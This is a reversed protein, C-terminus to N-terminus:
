WNEALENLNMWTRANYHYFRPGTENSKFFLWSETKSDYFYPYLEQTSYIWSGSANPLFFWDSTYPGSSDSMGLARSIKDIMERDSQLPNMGVEIEQKDDIGDEDSDANDAKTGHIFIEDYNSLGDGDADETHDAQPIELRESLKLTFNGEYTAGVSDEWIVTGSDADSFDLTLITERNSTATAGYNFDDVIVVGTDPETRLYGHQTKQNGYMDTSVLTSGNEFFEYTTDIAPMTANIELVAEGLSVPALGSAISILEFTGNYEDYTGDVMHLSGTTDSDFSLEYLARWNGDDSKTSLIGTSGSVRWEYTGAFAYSEINNWSSANSEGVGFFETETEFYTTELWSSPSIIGAHSEIASTSERMILGILSEPPSHEGFSLNVLTTVVAILGFIRKM